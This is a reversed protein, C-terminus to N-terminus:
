VRVGCWVVVVGGGCWMVVVGCAGERWCGDGLAPLCECYCPAPARSATAPPPHVQLLLLPRPVQLLLLPRTCKFCYCPTPASSATAPPPHVQLLLFPLVSSSYCPM